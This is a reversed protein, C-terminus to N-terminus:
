NRSANHFYAATGDPLTCERAFSPDHIWGNSHYYKENEEWTATAEKPSDQDKRLKYYDYPCAANPEKKDVRTLTNVLHAVATLSDAQDWHGDLTVRLHLIQKLEGNEYSKIVPHINIGCATHKQPTVIAWSSPDEGEMYHQNGFAFQLTFAYKSEKVLHSADASNHVWECRLENHYKVVGEENITVVDQMFSFMQWLASSHSARECLHKSIETPENKLVTHPLEKNHYKLELVNFLTRVNYRFGHIFGSASQPDCAQMSTGMFYLDSNTTSEWAENLKALREEKVTEFENIGEGFMEPLVYRWGCCRIVEDAIFDFEVGDRARVTVCYKFKGISADRGCNGSASPSAEEDDDAIKRARVPQWNEISHNSKLRVLDLFNNNVARLHGVFHTNWAHRIPTRNVMVLNAAHASLHDAVEFASNGKGIILVKKRAYDMQNLSHSSYSPMDELGPIPPCNEKMAGTAMLVVKTRYVTGNNDKVTFIGDEGREIKEVKTEFKIHKLLDLKSAFDSMYEVLATNSPFIDQSYNKFVLESDDCLLSNWDHRLNYDKHQCTNYLKNISILKGHRPNQLYFSGVQKSSELTIFNRGAQKMFLTMQCGAPGAGVILYDLVESM